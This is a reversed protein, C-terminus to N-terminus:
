IEHEETKETNIILGRKELQTKVKVKIGEIITYDGNTLWSIDDAYQAEIVIKTPEIYVHKGTKKVKKPQEYVPEEQLANALYLIFLIPSLCDGQPVGTNTQFCKGLTKGCKVVLQVETVLIKTLHLEDPELILVLDKMLTSRNVTDFAKSMDMMLLHTHYNNAAIAKEAMTRFVFVQVTTSRGKQYASQSKPIKSQLREGIRRILCISIIKRLISLLIIPRLNACPGQKKGPKALPTLIGLTIEKPAEGTKAIENLLEAIENIYKRQDM